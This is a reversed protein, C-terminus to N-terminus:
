SIGLPRIMWSLARTKLRLRNIQLLKSNKQKRNLIELKTNQLVDSYRVSTILEFDCFGIEHQYRRVKFFCATNIGRLVNYMESSIFPKVKGNKADEGFDIM